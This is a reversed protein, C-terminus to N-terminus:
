LQADVFCVSVFIESFNRKLIKEAINTRLAVNVYLEELPERTILIYVEMGIQSRYLNFFLAFTHNTLGM